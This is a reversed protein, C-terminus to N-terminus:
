VTFLAVSTEAKGERQKYLLVVCFVFLNLYLTLISYHPLYISDQFIGFPVFFRIEFINTNQKYNKLIKTINKYASQKYIWM